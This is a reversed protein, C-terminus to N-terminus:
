KLGLEESLKVIAATRKNEFDTCPVEEISIKAKLAEEYLRLAEQSFFCDIMGRSREMLVSTEPRMDVVKVVGKYNKKESQLGPDLADTAYMGLAKLSDNLISYKIELKKQTKWICKHQIWSLILPSVIGSLAGSGIAVIILIFLDM